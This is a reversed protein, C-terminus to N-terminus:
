RQRDVAVRSPAGMPQFSAAFRAEFHASAFFVSSSVASLRVRSFADAFASAISCFAWSSATM